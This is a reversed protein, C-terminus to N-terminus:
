WEATPDIKFVEAMEDLLPQLHETHEGYRGGLKPEVTALDPLTLDTK